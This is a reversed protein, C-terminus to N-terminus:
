ARDLDGVEGAVAGAGTATAAATAAAAAAARDLDAGAADRTARARPAVVRRRRRALGARRRRRRARPALAEQGAGGSGAAVAVDWVLAAARVVARAGGRSAVSSREGEERTHAADPRGAAASDRAVAVEAVAAGGVLAHAGPGRRQRRRVSAARPDDRVRDRGACLRRM